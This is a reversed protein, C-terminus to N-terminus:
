IRSSGDYRGGEKALEKSRNQFEYRKNLRKLQVLYHKSKTNARDYRRSYVLSTILLYVALGILYIGAARIGLSMLVDVDYMDFLTDVSYLVWVAAGLIFSFSYTFFSRLLYTSVYDSKFYRNASVIRKGEKKEFMAIGTMLKIKDENLM